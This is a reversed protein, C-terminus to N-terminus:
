LSEINHLIVYRLMRRVSVVSWKFHKQMFCVEVSTSPMLYFCLDTFLLEADAHIPFAFIVRHVYGM